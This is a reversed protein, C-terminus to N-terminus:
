FTYFQRNRCLSSTNERKENTNPTFFKKKTLIRFLKKERFFDAFKESRILLSSILHSESTEWIKYCFLSKISHGRKLNVINFM